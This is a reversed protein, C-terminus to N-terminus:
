ASHDQYWNITRAFVWLMAKTTYKIAGVTSYDPLTSSADIYNADTTSTAPIDALYITGSEAGVPSVPCHTGRTITVTAPPTNTRSRYDRLWKVMLYHFEAATVTNTNSGGITITEPIKNTLTLCDCMRSCMDQLQADTVTITSNTLMVRYFRRGAAPVSTDVLACPSSALVVNTLLQWNNTRSLNGVYQVAYCSNVTGTISLSPYGANLHASLGPTQANAQTGLVWMALALIGFPRWYRLTMEMFQAANKKM